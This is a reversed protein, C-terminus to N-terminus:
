SGCQYLLSDLCNAICKVRSSVAVLPQICVTIFGQQKLQAKLAEALNTVQLFAVATCGEFCTARNISTILSLSCAPSRM